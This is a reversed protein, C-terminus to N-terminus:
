TLTALMARMLKPPPGAVVLANAPIDQSFRTCSTEEPLLYDLM